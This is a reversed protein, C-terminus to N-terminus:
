RARIAENIATRSTELAGLLADKWSGETKEHAYLLSRSANVIAGLGKGDFAEAVDKATAGQAGFGPVLLPTHPLLSRIRGLERPYTAGAVAGISSYGSAGRDQGWRGVELAVHEYLPRGDVELDQFTPASPNSTRVLVFVGREPGAAFPAVSDRGFYPSVTVADAAFPGTGTHAKAYAGATSGIDGRKIDGITLIGAERAVGLLESYVRLGAPGLEEFFAIQVKIAPVRGAVLGIVERGFAGFLRATSEPDKAQAGSTRLEGPIRDIWPDFGLVVRCDTREVADFLRDAFSAVTSMTSRV